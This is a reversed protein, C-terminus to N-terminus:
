RKALHVKAGAVWLGMEKITLFKLNQVVLLDAKARMALINLEPGNILRSIQNILKFLLTEEDFRRGIEKSRQKKTRSPGRRSLCSRM